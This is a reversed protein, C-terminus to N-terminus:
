AILNGSLQWTDTARKYLTASAYQGAISKYGALSTITVGSGQALTVKGAGTQTVEIQSGVPLAVTSNPPVTVTVASSNSFECIKGADTLAFTYTTGAQPNISRTITSYTAAIQALMATNDIDSLPQLTDLYKFRDYWEKTFRGGADIATVDIPPNRAIM